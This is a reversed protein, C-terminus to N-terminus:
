CCRLQNRLLGGVGAFWRPQERDRYVVLSSWGLVSFIGRGGVDKRWEQDVRECWEKRRRHVCRHKFDTLFHDPLFFLLLDAVMAGGQFLGWGWLLVRSVVTSAEAAGANNQNALFAAMGLLM